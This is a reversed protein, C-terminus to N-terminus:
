AYLPLGMMFSGVLSGTAALSRIVQGTTATGRSSFDASSWGSARAIAKLERSGNLVVPHGAAELLEIDDTSDSYFFCNLTAARNSPSVSRPMCRASVLVPPRSLAAPSSARSLRLIPPTFTISEWIRRLPYVQYPTASSIIAISHGAARHAEIM